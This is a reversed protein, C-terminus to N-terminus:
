DQEAPEEARKETEPVEPTDMDPQVPDTAGTQGAFSEFEQSVPQASRDMLLRVIDPRAYHGVSDCAYNAM